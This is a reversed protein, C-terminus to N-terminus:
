LDEWLDMSGPSKKKRKQSLTESQRETVWASTCHRSRLEGCGGPELSEGAEAERIAPIVPMALRQTKLLSPTQWRPWAPRSSRAELSRGSQVRLTSPNCAHAM